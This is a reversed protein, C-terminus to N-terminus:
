PKAAAHRSPRRCTRLPTRSLTVVRAAHSRYPLTAGSNGPTGSVIDGRLKISRISWSPRSEHSRVASSGM